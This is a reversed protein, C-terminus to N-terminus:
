EEQALKLQSACIALQEAGGRIRAQEEAGTVGAAEMFMKAAKENWENRLDDVVKTKLM